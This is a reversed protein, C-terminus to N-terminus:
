RRRDAIVRRSIASRPKPNTATSPSQGSQQRSLRQTFPAASAAAPEARSTSPPKSRQGVHIHGL